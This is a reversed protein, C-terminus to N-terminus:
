GKAAHDSDQQRRCERDSIRYSKYNNKKDAPTDRYLHVVKPGDWKLEVLIYVYAHTYIHHIQTHRYEFRTIILNM